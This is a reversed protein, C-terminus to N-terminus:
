KFQVTNNNIEYEIKNIDSIISLIEQLSQERGLVGTFTENELAKNNFSVNVNYWRSLVTMINKLPMDKFSFVGKRWATENFVDVNKITIINDVVLSQEGPQLINKQSPTSVAIKGEVLTSYMQQEDKYAKINFETGLVEIDQRRTLVKFSAGQHNTSPSVDFYAEGYVLEVQRTEGAKFTTPYKLKSESNLWVQTGDALKIFFQGGRPITLYNYAITENEPINNLVADYLISNGNSHASKKHFSVGEELVVKSGDELTLTAKGSGGEITQNVIVPSVPDKRNKQTFFFTISILLVVSAAVAYKFYSSRKKSVPQLRSEIANWGKELDVLLRENNYNEKVQAYYGQHLESENFWESFIREEEKTLKNQIKKIILKFEM